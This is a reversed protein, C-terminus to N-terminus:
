RVMVSPVGEFTFYLTGHPLLDEEDVPIMSEEYVERATAALVSADSPEVKGGFGNWKGRGFGRKKM